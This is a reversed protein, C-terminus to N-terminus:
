RSGVMRYCFSSSSSLSKIAHCPLPPLAARIEAVDECAHIFRRRLKDRDPFTGHGRIAATTASSTTATAAVAQYKLLRGLTPITFWAGTETSTASKWFLVESVNNSSVRSGITLTARSPALKM